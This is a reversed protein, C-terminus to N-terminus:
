FKAWNKGPLPRRERCNQDQDATTPNRLFFLFYITFYSFLLFLLRFYLAREGNSIYPRDILSILVFKNSFIDCNYQCEVHLHAICTVEGGPNSVVCKYVGADAPRVGFVMLAYDGDTPNNAIRYKDSSHLTRNNHFWECTTPSASYIKCWFHAMAGENLHQDRM